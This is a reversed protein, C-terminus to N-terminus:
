RRPAALRSPSATSARIRCRRTARQRRHAAAPATGRARDNLAAWLVRPVRGTVSDRAANVTACRDQVQGPPENVTVCCVSVPQAVELTERTAGISGICRGSACPGVPPAHRAVPRTGSDPVPPTAWWRPSRPRPPPVRVRSRTSGFCTRQWSRWEGRRGCPVAQGAPRYEVCFVEGKAADRGPPM